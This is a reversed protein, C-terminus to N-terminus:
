EDGGGEWHRFNIPSHDDYFKMTEFQYRFLLRSRCGDCVAHDPLGCDKGIGAHYRTDSTDAGCLRCGHEVGASDIRDWCEDCIIVPSGGKKDM